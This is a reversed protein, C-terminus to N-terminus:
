REEDRVTGYSDGKNGKINQDGVQSDFVSQRRGKYIIIVSKRNPETSTLIAGYQNARNLIQSRVYVWDM